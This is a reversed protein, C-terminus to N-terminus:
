RSTKWNRSVRSELRLSISTALSAALASCAACCVLQLGAAHRNSCWTATQQQLWLWSCYKKTWVYCSVASVELVIYRHCEESAIGLPTM